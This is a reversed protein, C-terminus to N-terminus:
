ISNIAYTLEQSGAVPFPANQRLQRDKFPSITEHSTPFPPTAFQITSAYPLSRNTPCLSSIHNSSVGWWEVLGEKQEERKSELYENLEKHPDLPCEDESNDDLAMQM